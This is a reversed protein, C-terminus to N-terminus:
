LLPFELDESHYENGHECISHFRGTECLVVKASKFGELCLTESLYEVDFGGVVCLYEVRVNGCLCVGLDKM